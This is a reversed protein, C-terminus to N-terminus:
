KAAVEAMNNFIQKQMSLITQYSEDMKASIIEWDYTSRILDYGNSSLIKRMALDNLLEITRMAFEKPDDEILVSEGDVVNIGECGISTTVVPKKMALAELVKLRTGGGMRLPVVYLSSRWVYPRVDEVFGTVIINDASRDQLCKPPSNGVIYVKAQPIKKLILPFIEDLFYLMGDYNPFYGMMGTFVMSYPELETPQPTFYSTDVGNPILFKPIHPVDKNLIARDRDSVVFIADMKKCAAIEEEYSKKYERYYHVRRLSNQQYKWMRFLNDYEINHEDLIKVADTNLEFNGMIPFEMQVIDFDEAGLIEDLKKQMERSKSFLSFFSGSTWLAYFQAIRRYSWTWPPDVIHLERVKSSFHDNLLKLENGRGFSVFTVDNNQTIGKLLHYIRLAGGFNPPVPCYPSLHLIKM